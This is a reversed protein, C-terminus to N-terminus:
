TSLVPTVDLTSRIKQALEKQSYPKDLFNADLYMLDKQHAAKDSFGSTLLVKLNERNATALKALEYGSIGNPMVIDSFLVNIEPTQALQELAERGNSATLVRYGLSELMEKAMEKLAKEDDVVLITVNGRPMTEIQKDNQVIYTEALITDRPLYIKFTTGIAGDTQCKIYGNSRKVFAYVMALGLGTGKGQDKTTFFPEFIRDIFESPIGKGTDSVTLEVYEGPHLGPDPQCDTEDLIVNHTEITIRGHSTMSDRANICLNLLADEFDGPDIDTLWLDRSTTYTVNIEPTISRSILEKMENIVQGIDVKSIQKAELRSFNLLQKILKAARSSAKKIVQIRKLTKEDSNINKELLELNGLIIGLLNNFDHAIGGTLQGIADMKQSRRITKENQKRETIDRGVCLVGILTGDNTIMPTKITELIEKHNDSAYTVEEENISPERKDMVAQDHKRFFDALEKNVFDYDTKGVIENEKADFLQEFKPNCSLFVGDPDKLWVLDPLAEILTRLKAENALIIKEAKKRETIDTFYITLGDASPYIRNEYWQDWPPYYEEFTIAQQTELAKLYMQHFPQGVGEPYETWIHKGILEEANERQLMRAARANVYSYCWNSDLAVFGDNVREIMKNMLERAADAEKRAAEAILFQQEYDKNM